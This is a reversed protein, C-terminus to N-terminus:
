IFYLSNFYKIIEYLINKRIKIQNINVFIHFKLFVYNRRIVEYQSIMKM